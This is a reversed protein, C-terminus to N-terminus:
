RRITARRAPEAPKRFEIPLFVESDPFLRACLAHWMLYHRIHGIWQRTAPHYSLHGDHLETPLRQKVLRAAVGVLRGSVADAEVIVNRGNQRVMTSLLQEAVCAFGACVEGVSQKAREELQQKSPRHDYPPGDDRTRKAM